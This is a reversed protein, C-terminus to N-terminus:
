HKKCSEVDSPRVNKNDGEDWTVGASNYHGKSPAGAAKEHFAIDGVSLVENM